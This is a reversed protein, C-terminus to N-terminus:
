KGEAPGTARMIAKSHMRETEQCRLGIDEFTRTEAPERAVKTKSIDPCALAM